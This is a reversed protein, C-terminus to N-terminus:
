CTVEALLDSNWLVKLRSIYKNNFAKRMQLLAMGVGFVAPLSLLFLMIQSRVTPDALRLQLDKVVDLM